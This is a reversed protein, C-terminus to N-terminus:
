WHGHGRRRMLVVAVAVAGLAALVAAARVRRRDGRPGPERLSGARGAVTGAVDGARDLAAHAGSSVTDRVRAAAQAAADRARGKVDAKGALAEITDGLESRTRAIDARLAATDAAAPRDGNLKGGPVRAGALGEAAFRRKM